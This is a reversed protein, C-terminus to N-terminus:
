VLDIEVELGPLGELSFSHTDNRTITDEVDKWKLVPLPDDITFALTATKKFLERNAPHFLEVYITGKDTGTGGVISMNVDILGRLMLLKLRRSPGKPPSPAVIQMEDNVDSSALTVSVWRTTDMRVPIDVNNKRHLKHVRVRFSYSSGRQVTVVYNAELYYQKRGFRGAGGGGGDGTDDTNSDEPCEQPPIGNFISLGAIPNSMSLPVPFAPDGTFYETDGVEISISVKPLTTEIVQHTVMCYPSSIGELNISLADFPMYKILDITGDFSARDYITADRNGWFATTFEVNEKDTYIFIDLEQEIKGYLGVNKSYKFNRQSTKRGSYDVVWNTSTVTRIDELTKRTISMSKFAINNATIVGEPPKSQYLYTFEFVSGSKFVALNAQYSVRQIFDFADPNDFICFNARRNDILTALTAYNPFTYTTFNTIIDNLLYAVNSSAQSQYSVFVGGSTDWNECEFDGLPVHFSIISIVRGSATPHNLQTTYYSSPVPVFVRNGKYTRFCYVSFVESSPLSNFAYVEGGNPNYRVTANKEISLNQQNLMEVQVEQNELVGLNNLMLQEGNLVYEGWSPVPVTSVDISWSPEPETSWEKEFYCLNGEQSICKNIESSNYLFKGALNHYSDFWAAAKNELDEGSVRSLPHIGMLTPQNDQLITFKGTDSLYGEVRYGNVQLDKFGSGLENADSIYFSTTTSDIDDVTKTEIPGSIKVAPVHACLGFGMPVVKDVSEDLLAPFDSRTLVYGINESEFFSDIRLQITREGEDWVPSGSVEGSTILTAGETYYLYLDATAKQIFGAEMKTKISGDTDDLTLNYSSLTTSTKSADLSINGLNLIKGEVGSAAKDGYTVVSADTYVIIVRWEPESGYQQQLKTLVPSSIDRPM